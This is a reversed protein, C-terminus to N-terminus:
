AWPRERLTALFADVVRPDFQKGAESRLEEIARATTVAGRYSRDTTMADFADVVAIIRAGLPIQEGALGRPYGRFRGGQEGDWREQHHFVLPAAQELEEVSELIRAGIEPHREVVAREDDDLPGEKNLIHEPIGIKGVDHLVSAIQLLELDRDALGLRKGVAVAYASVRQLHGETYLDKAEVAGSLARVVRQLDKRLRSNSEFLHELLDAEREWATGVIVGVALFVLLYAYSALEHIRQEQSGGAAVHAEVLLFAMGAGGASLLGGRLRHRRCAWLIPILNLLGVWFGSAVLAEDVLLTIAAVMSIMATVLLVSMTREPEPRRIVSPLDGSTEAVAMVFSPRRRVVVEGPIRALWPGLLGEGVILIPAGFVLVSVLTSRVWLGAVEWSGDFGLSIVMATFVAGLAGSVAYVLYSRLNPMGRGVGRCWRFALYVAAGAVGYTVTSVLLYVTTAGLLLNYVVHAVAVGALGLWGFLTAGVVFALSTAALLDLGPLEGAWAGVLKAVAGAV